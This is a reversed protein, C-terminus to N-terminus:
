ESKKARKKPCTLERKLDALKAAAAPNVDALSMKSHNKPPPALKGKPEKPKSTSTGVKPSAKTKPEAPKAVPKPAPKASIRPKFLMRELEGKSKEMLIGRNARHSQLPEPLKIRSIPLGSLKRENLEDIMHRTWDKFWAEMRRLENRTEEAMTLAMALINAETKAAFRGSLADPHLLPLLTRVAWRELEKTRKEAQTQIDMLTFSDAEFLGVFPNGIAEFATYWRGFLRFLPAYTFDPKEGNQYFDLEHHSVKALTGPAGAIWFSRTCTPRLELAGAPLTVSTEDEKAPLEYERHPLIFQGTKPHRAAWRGSEGSKEFTLPFDTLVVGDQWERGALAKYNAPVVEAIRAGERQRVRCLYEKGPKPRFTAVPFLPVDERQGSDFRTAEPYDKNRTYSKVCRLTEPEGFNEQILEDLSKKKATRM